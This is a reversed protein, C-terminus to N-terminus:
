YTGIKNTLKFIDVLQEHKPSFTTAQGGTDSQLECTPYCMCRDSVLVQREVRCESFTTQLSLVSM